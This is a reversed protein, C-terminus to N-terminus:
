ELVYCVCVSMIGRILANNQLCWWLSYYDVGCFAAAQQLTRFCGLPLEYEDREDIIMYVKKFDIREM